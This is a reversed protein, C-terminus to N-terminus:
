HQQAEKSSTTCRMLVEFKNINANGLAAKQTDAFRTAIQDEYSVSKHLPETCLKFNLLTKDCTGKKSFIDSGVCALTRKGVNYFVRLGQFQIELVM